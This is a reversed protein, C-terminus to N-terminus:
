VRWARLCENLPIRHLGAEGAFAADAGVCVGIKGGPGEVLDGRQAFLVSPLPAGLHASVADGYNTVGARRKIVRLAQKPTHYTSRWDDALSPTETLAAFVDAAWTLCDHQGWSFPRGKAAEIEDHLRIEWGPTKRTM